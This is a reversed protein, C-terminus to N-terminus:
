KAPAADASFAGKLFAQPVSVELGLREEARLTVLNRTFDDGVFGAEVTVAQRDWVMAGQKFSGILFEGQKIQPSLVVPVGFVNMGAASGPLGYLYVGQTSKALEMASWDAPNVVVADPIVGYTWMTYKARNVADVLNDGKIAKYTPVEKNTLLGAINPATGDGNLLQGDIRKALGYRLRTDIYSVIAPADALLQNSVKLWHAVTEIQTNIQKFSVDSQPKTEGQKVEAAGNNFGDWIEKTSVVTLANTVGAPIIDRITLPEYKGPIIGPVNQPYMNTGTESFTSNKIELRASNSQRSVLSKFEASDALQAGMSKRAAEITGFTTMKQGIDLMSEEFKKSLAVVEDKAEKAAVGNEQVQGEYKEIASKIQTELKSEVSKFGETIATNLESM